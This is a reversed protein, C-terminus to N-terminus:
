EEEEIETLTPQGNVAISCEAMIVDAPGGVTVRIRTLPGNFSWVENEVVEPPGEDAVYTFNPLDLEWNHNELGNITDYLTDLDDDSEILLKFDVQGARLLTAKLEAYRDASQHTTIDKTEATIEPPNIDILKGITTFEEEEEGDGLKLDAGYSDHTSM